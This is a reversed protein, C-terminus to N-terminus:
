RRRRGGYVGLVLGGLIVLVASTPEPVVRLGVLDVWAWSGTGGGLSTNELQVGLLNGVGAAPADFTLSHFVLPDSRGGSGLPDVAASGFPTPTGGDDYYLTVTLETAQWDNREYFSVEYSEGAAIAHGTTQFIAGDGSQLFAINVGLDPQPQATFAELGSDGSPGTSTWGPINSWTADGNTKAAVPDEFNANVLAISAAQAGATAVVAVALIVMAVKCLSGIKMM